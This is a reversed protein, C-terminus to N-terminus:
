APLERLVRRIESGDGVHHRPSLVERVQMSDVVNSLGYNDAEAHCMNGEDGAELWSKCNEWAGENLHHWVHQVEDSNGHNHADHQCHGTVDERAM